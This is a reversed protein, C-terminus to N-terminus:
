KQMALSYLLTGLVAIASGLASQLNIPTRFIIVSGAILVVRKFTSAVAHTIPHVLDLIWFSIENSLYYTLGSIIINLILTKPNTGGHIAATWIRRIKTGELLFILPIMEVSSFLTMIQFLTASNFSSHKLEIKARIVRLQLFLNSLMASNFALWSFSLDKSSALSIGFVIPVLSLYVFKTHVSKLIIVSLISSFIPEAAKIVHTFSVSGSGLSILSAINGLGHLASIKSIAYIEPAKVVPRSFILQPLVIPLGLILQLVAITVPLPLQNLVVKNVTSYYLTIAYWLILFFPLKWPSNNAKAMTSVSPQDSMISFIDLYSKNKQISRHLENRRQINTSTSPLQELCGSTITTKCYGELLCFALLMSPVLIKM